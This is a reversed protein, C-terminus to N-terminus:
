EAAVLMPSPGGGPCVGRSERIMGCMAESCKGCNIRTDHHAHVQAPSKAGAAIADAVKRTNLSRCVCVIM